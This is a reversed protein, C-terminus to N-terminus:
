RGLVEGLAALLLEVNRRRATHGMCGIRWVRGAMPGVGAGIEIGYRELLAGRVDAEDMGGAPRRAGLGHHAPASPPGGPGGARLGLKELGDQLAGGCAEHRAWSAELGEDLLVGLGAHLAFIMSVPATHHYTRGGRAKSTARRDPRPRPVVVAAARRLRARARTAWRSRRWARPCASASRPGATPSTSGGATSRSRSAASRRSATSWSCRTARARRRAADVDNRVGTSTEAHVVAIVAPRPHADLLAEPDLPEGWPAEVRVVEAGLRGAVDCMREGFLGNVGVVVVDGPRVVNVFAAEM